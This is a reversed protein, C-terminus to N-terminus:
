SAQGTLRVVDMNAIMEGTMAKFENYHSTAQHAAFADKDDYIEYLCVSDELGDSPLLVDFQQCGPEDSVSAKANEQILPMFTDKTGPKLTITIFLVFQSM